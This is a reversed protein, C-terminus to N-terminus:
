VPCTQVLLDSLMQIAKDTAEFGKEKFYGRVFDPVQNDYLKKSALSVTEKDILKGLKKRKDLSKHKHALVLITSPQPNLVYNEMLKQGVEKNLDKIEQAEKVIVVQRESMMPFRKANNIVTSVDVDKGYLIIQNFGKASEELANDEIYDSIKDIFYPEEGHLFYVPSYNGKKLDKLVSEFNSAM